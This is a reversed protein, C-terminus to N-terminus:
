RQGYYWLKTIAAIFCQQVTQVLYHVLVEMNEYTQSLVSNVARLVTEPPRNHTTIIASVLEMGVAKWSKESTDSIRM